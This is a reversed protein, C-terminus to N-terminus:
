NVENESRTMAQALTAEADERAMSRTWLRKENRKVIMIADGTAARVMGELYIRSSIPELLAADLRQLVAAWAEADGALAVEKPDDKDHITFTASLMSHDAPSRRLQWRLETGATLYRSWSKSLIECYIKEERPVLPKVAQSEQANYFFDMQVECMDRILDIEAEGLGYLEFVCEDLDHELKQVRAPPTTAPDIGQLAKVVRLIRQKLRGNEPIHVPLSLVEDDLHLEHHWTGWTSGTVFFFYQALSSWLIGLLIQHKWQPEERLKIGHLSNTFCFSETALRAVIRGTTYGREDIGRKVLIRRGDYIERVGRREVRLPPPESLAFDLKGYRQIRGVDFSRYQSLWLAENEQNGKQYGRGKDAILESLRRYRSQLHIVLNRDRHNGWWYTKWTQYDGLHDQSHLIKLDSRSFTISQLGEVQRTRRASWYQTSRDVAQREPSKEFAVAVFPAIEKRFFLRRVHIFNFVALLHCHGLWHHRFAVSKEHHKFLVGSSVLLAAVGGPALLSLSRWIFAQSRERGGIPFNEAKCWDIAAQNLQRAELDRPGPSGWPPNGIVVDFRPWGLAGVKETAFADAPLLINMSGPDGSVVVKPLRNGREIQERLDPPEIYHLLALYLSFAAVRIAEPNVEIGRLQVRLIKKLEDFRLRRGQKAVRYRVIRRFAEVLFIGSGCSPDLITPTKALRDVTLVQGVLFDVLVPPTYHAGHGDASASQHHYFEEYISSILDIPVIKFDYAYLWLKLQRDTAGFLLGRIQDLHEQSVAREEAAMDPFMDGNLDEALRRFLAFTLGKDRLVRAYLSPNLNMDLGLDTNPETLVRQWRPKASAVEDFTRQTLIERDELYRIFISRGILSHAFRLNQDGLGLKILEKRVKKLDRILAMDARQSLKGFRGEAEFVQGSELSERRFDRLKEAVETARRALALPKMKKFEQASRPPRNALDYIALEGPRAFFLLRPRALSWARNFQRWATEPDAEGELFTVVPNNDLFFIKTVQASQAARLWDGKDIWVEDPLDEPGRRAELFDESEAYGLDQWAAKLLAQASEGPPPVDLSM